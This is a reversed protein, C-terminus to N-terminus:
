RVRVARGFFFGVLLLPIVALGAPTWGLKEALYGFLIPGLITGLNQGLSIVGLGLGAWEPKHMIEPTASFVATPVAGGIVGNLLMLLPILWGTVQFPFVLLSAVILIPWTFLTKRSGIRDSLIGALPTFILMGVMPLSTVLAASNLSYNRITSLFTPYYTNISVNALAFLGFTAGLLWIDRKRLAPKLSLIEHRLSSRVAPQSAELHPPMRLFLLVLGFALLACAVSFWWIAQWGYATAMRPALFFMLGAGLPVWTAWIGMPAGRKHPPFWMAIAAPAIVAMLGMGIGEIVRSILM